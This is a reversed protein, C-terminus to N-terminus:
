DMGTIRRILSGTNRGANGAIHGGLSFGVLHMNNYSAGLSVLWEIFASLGQGLTAVGYKATM